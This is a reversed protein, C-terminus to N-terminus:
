LEGKEDTLAIKAKEFLDSENDPHNQKSLSDLTKAMLLITKSQRFGRQGQKHVCRYLALCLTGVGMMVGVILYIFVESIIEALLM